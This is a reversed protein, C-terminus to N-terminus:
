KGRRKVETIQVRAVRYPPGVPNRESYAWNCLRNTRTDVFAWALVSKARVPKARKM